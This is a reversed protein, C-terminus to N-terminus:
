AAEEIADASRRRHRRMLLMAAVVALYVALAAALSRLFPTVTSAERPGTDRVLSPPTDPDAAGATPDLLGADHALRGVPAMRVEASGSTHELVTGAFAQRIQGDPMRVAPGLPKGLMSASRDLAQRTARRVTGASGADLYAAKIAPDTLLSLVSRDSPPRQGGSTTKVPPLHAARYADPAAVALAEVIPLTAMSRDGGAVLVAGDFMQYSRGGSTWSATLPAGAVAKGGLNTWGSAFDGTAGNVVPYGGCRSVDTVV